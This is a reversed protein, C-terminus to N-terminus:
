RNWQLIKEVLISWDDGAFEFPDAPDAPAQDPPTLATHLYLTAM